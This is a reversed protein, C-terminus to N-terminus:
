KKATTFTSLWLHVYRSSQFYRQSFGFSQILTKFKPTINNLM